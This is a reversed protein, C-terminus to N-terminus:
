GGAPPPCFFVHQMTGGLDPEVVSFGSGNGAIQGDLFHIEIMAAQELKARNQTIGGCSVEMEALCDVSVTLPKGVEGVGKLVHAVTGTVTCAGDAGTGVSIGTIQVALDAARVDEELLCPDIMASAPAGALALTLPLVLLRSGVHM